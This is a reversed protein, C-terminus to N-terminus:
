ATARKEAPRSERRGRYRGANKDYQLRGFQEVTLSALFDSMLGQLAHMNHRINCIEEQDCPESRESQESRLCAVLSVPGSLSEVVEQLSLESLPRRLRFGGKPGRVAEILGKRNLQHFIKRLLSLPINFGEALERSSVVRGIESMALLAILAYEFDRRLRM